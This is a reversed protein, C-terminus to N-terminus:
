KESVSSTHNELLEIEVSPLMCTKPTGFWRKRNKAVIRYLWNTFCMPLIRFVLLFRWGTDLQKLIEFAAAAETYQKNNQYLVVTSITEAHKGIIKTAIESQLPCFLFQKEFDHEAIFRVSFSCLGCTGDFFVIPRSHKTQIDM